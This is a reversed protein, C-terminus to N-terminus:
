RAMQLTQLAVNFNSVLHSHNVNPYEAYSNSHICGPACTAFMSQGLNSSAEAVLGDNALGGLQFQIWTNAARSAYGGRGFELVARGGSISHFDVTNCPVAITKLHALLFEPGDRGILQMATRCKPSYGGAVLGSIAESWALLYELYRPETLTGDNPTGLTIVKRVYRHGAYLAILARAVLGGMSHGVVVIRNQAIAGNGLDDLRQLLEALSQAAVDIGNFCAYNFALAAFGNGAFQTMLPTMCSANATFGHIFLAVQRGQFDSCYARAGDSVRLIENGQRILRRQEEWM